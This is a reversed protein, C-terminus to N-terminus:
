LAYNKCRISALAEGYIVSSTAVNKGLSADVNAEVTLEDRIAQVDDNKRHKAIPAVLQEEDRVDWACAVILHGPLNPHGAEM